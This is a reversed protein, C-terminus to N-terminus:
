KIKRPEEQAPTPQARYKNLENQLQGLLANSGQLQEDKEKIAQKLQAVQTELEEIRKKMQVSTCGSSLLMVMILGLCLVRLKLGKM